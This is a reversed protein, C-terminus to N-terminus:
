VTRLPSLRLLMTLQNPTDYSVTRLIFGCIVSGVAIWAPSLSLIGRGVRQGPGDSKMGASGPRRLRSLSLGGKRSARRRGDRGNRKGMSPAANHTLIGPLHHSTAWLPSCCVVPGRSWAISTLWALLAVWAVRGDV